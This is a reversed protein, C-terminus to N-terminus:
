ELVLSTEYEKNRGGQVVKEALRRKPPSKHTLEESHFGLAAWNLSEQDGQGTGRSVNCCLECRTEGVPFCSLAGIYEASESAM